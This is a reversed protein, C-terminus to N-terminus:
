FIRNEGGSIKDMQNSLQSFTHYINTQHAAPQHAAPCCFGFSVTIACNQCEPISIIPARNVTMSMNELKPTRYAAASPSPAYSRQDFHSKSLAFARKKGLCQYTAQDSFKEM